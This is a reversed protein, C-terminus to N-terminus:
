RAVNSRQCWNAPKRPHAHMFEITKTISLKMRMLFHKMQLSSKKVTCRCCADPHNIKRNEKLAIANDQKENSLGLDQKIIRSMTRPAIDMDRPMIKQKRNIRSRVANIVQLTRVVRPRSSRVTRKWSSLCSM